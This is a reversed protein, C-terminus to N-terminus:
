RGTSVGLEKVIQTERGITKLVTGIRDREQKGRM